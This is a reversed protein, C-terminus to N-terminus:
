WRAEGVPEQAEALGNATMLEAAVAIFHELQAVTMSSVELTGTVCRVGQGFQPDVARRNSSVIM